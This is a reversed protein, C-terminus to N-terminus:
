KICYTQNFKDMETARSWYYDWNNFVENANIGKSELMQKLMSGMQNRPMLGKSGGCAVAVMMSAVQNRRAESNDQITAASSNKSSNIEQQQKERWEEEERRM